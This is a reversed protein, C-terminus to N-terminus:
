GTIRLNRYSASAGSSYFGFRGGGFAISDTFTLTTSKGGSVIEVSLTSGQVTIKVHNWAGIELSVREAAANSDTHTYNLKEIKAARKTFSVYYGQIYRYDETM